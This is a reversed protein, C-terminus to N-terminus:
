CTRTRWYLQLPCVRAGSNQRPLDPVTNRTAGRRRGPAYDITFGEHHLGVAALAPVAVNAGDERLLM